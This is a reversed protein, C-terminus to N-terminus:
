IDDNIGNDIDHYSDYDYIATAIIEGEYVGLNEFVASNKYITNELMLKDSPFENSVSMSDVDAFANATCLIM